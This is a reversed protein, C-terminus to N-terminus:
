LIICRKHRMEIMLIAHGITEIVKKVGEKSYASCEVYAFAGITKAIDLGEEAKVPELERKALEHITAEDTRLDIKNGILM